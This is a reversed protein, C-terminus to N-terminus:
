WGQGKELGKQQLRTCTVAQSCIHSMVCYTVNSSAPESVTVSIQTRMMGGGWKGSVEVHGKVSKHLGNTNPQTGESM